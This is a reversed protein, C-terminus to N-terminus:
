WNNRQERLQLFTDKTQNFFPNIERELKLTSLKFQNNQRLEATELLLAELKASSKLSLAFKLNNEWYDHGPYLLVDGPLSQYFESITAHLVEPDGGHHCNGVGANFLTDGSFVAYPQRKRLLLLSLHGMTHGLTEKVKLTVEPEVILEDGDKLWRKVNEIKGQAKSYAYVSAGTLESLERNGQTHDWHEHTNIIADLTKGARQLIKLLPAANYPDICYNKEGLILYSFNRLTNKAFVQYIKM